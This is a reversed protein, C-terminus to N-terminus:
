KPNENQNKPLTIKVPDADNCQITISDLWPPVELNGPVEGAQDGTLAARPRICAGHHGRSGCFEGHITECAEELASRLREIRGELFMVALNAETELEKIRELAIDRDKQACNREFIVSDRLLKETRGLVNYASKSEALEAKLMTNEGAFKDREKEAEHARAAWVNASDLLEFRRIELADRERIVDCLPKNAKYWEHMQAVAEDREKALSQFTVYESEDNENFYKACDKCIWLKESM